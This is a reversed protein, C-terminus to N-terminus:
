IYPWLATKRPKNEYPVVAGTLISDMSMAPHSCTAWSNSSFSSM